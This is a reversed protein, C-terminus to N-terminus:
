DSEDFGLDIHDLKHCKTEITSALSFSTSGNSILFAARQSMSSPVKLNNFTKLAQAIETRKMDKKDNEYNMFNCALISKNGAISNALKLYTEKSLNPMNVSVEKLNPLSAFLEALKDAIENQEPGCQFYFHQLKRMEQCISLFPVVFEATFNNSGLEIGVIPTEKIFKSLSMFFNRCKDVKIDNMSIFHIKKQTTLFNFLDVSLNNGSWNFDAINPQCKTQDIGKFSNVFTNERPELHSFDVMLDSSALERNPLTSTLLELIPKFTLNKFKSYSFDVLVINKPLLLVPQDNEQITLPNDFNLHNLHLQHIDTQCKGIETLLVSGDVDISSFYLSELKSHLGLFEKFVEFPFQGFQMNFLGFSTLNSFCRIKNLNDFVNILDAQQMALTSLKIDSINHICSLCGNMFNELLYFSSNFFEYITISSRPVNQFNFVPASTNYDSFKIQQIKTSNNLLYEFFNMFDDCFDQFIVKFIRSDLGISKAYYASYNGPHFTSDILLQGRNYIQPNSFYSVGDITTQPIKQQKMDYHIYYLARQYIAYSAPFFKMQIPPSLKPVNIQSTVNSSILNISYTLYEFFVDMKKGDFITFLSQDPLVKVLVAAKSGKGKDNIFKIESCNFLCILEEVNAFKSSKTFLYIFGSTLVVYGTQAPLNRTPPFNFQVKSAYLIEEQDCLHKVISEIKKAKVNISPTLLKM